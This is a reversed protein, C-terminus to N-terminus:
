PNSADNTRMVIRGYGPPCINQWVGPPISGSLAKGSLCARLSVEIWELRKIASLLAILTM